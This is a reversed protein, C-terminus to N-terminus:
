GGRHPAPLRGRTYMWHQHEPPVRRLRQRVAQDPRDLPEAIRRYWLGNAKHVLARGIVETTDARRVQLATPLLAVTGLGRVTRTRGFGWTCLESGCAPCAMAGSTLHEAADEASLIVIVPPPAKSMISDDSRVEAGPSPFPHLVSAEQLPNADM